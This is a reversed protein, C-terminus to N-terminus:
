NYISLKLRQLTFGYIILAISAQRSSVSPTGFQINRGSFTIKSDGALIRCKLSFDDIYAEFSLSSGFAIKGNVASSYSLIKQDILGM